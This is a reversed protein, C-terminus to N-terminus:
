RQSFKYITTFKYVDGAKLIPSPFDPINISDPFYQTEFCFGDGCAYIKGNKGKANNLYNGTYFQMGPKDSFVKMMIGSKDGEAFACGRMGSGNIIYNNDFPTKIKKQKTFDFSTGSVPKIEGDPINDSKFPTFTDAFIKVEHGFINGTGEGNLNFYSHNTLNIVTDAKSVALYEMVLESEGTFTYKVEASLEGPYGEEMDSSVYSLKVSDGSQVANWLKKHFGEKGGHISNEGNNIFLNYNKGNLSFKGKSIRNAVRGIVAGFHPTNILYDENKDFGLAVDVLKKNKDL